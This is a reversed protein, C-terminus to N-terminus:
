GYQHKEGYDIVLKANEISKIGRVLVIPNPVIFNPILYEYWHKKEKLIMYTNGIGEKMIKYGKYDQMFNEMKM